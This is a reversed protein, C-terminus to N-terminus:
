KMFKNLHKLVEEEDIVYTSQIISQQIELNAKLNICIKLSEKILDKKESEKMYKNENVGM